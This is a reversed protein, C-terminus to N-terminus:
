RSSLSCARLASPECRHRVWVAEEQALFTLGFKGAGILLVRLPKNEAARRRLLRYRNM